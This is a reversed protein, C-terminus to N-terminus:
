LSIYLKDFWKEITLFIKNFFHHYLFNWSMIRIKDIMICSLGFIIAFLIVFAIYLSGGLKNYMTNMLEIYFPSIVPHLHILYISFSSCALYNIFKSKINLKSFALFFFLSAFVVFPSAYSIMNLSRKTIYFLLIPILTM